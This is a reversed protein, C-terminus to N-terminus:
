WKFKGQLIQKYIEPGREAELLALTVNGLNYCEGRTLLFSDLLNKRTSKLWNNAFELGDIIPKLAFHQFGQAHYRESFVDAAVRELGLSIGEDLLRFHYSPVPHLVCHTIHHAYEHAFVVVQAAKSSLVDKAWSPAGVVIKQKESEYSGEEVSLDSSLIVTPESIDSIDLFPNIIEKTETFLESIEKKRFLHLKENEKKSCLFFDYKEEYHKLLEEIKSLPRSQLQKLLEGNYFQDLYDTLTM